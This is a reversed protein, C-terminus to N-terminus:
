LISCIELLSQVEFTPTLNKETNEKKGSNYWISAIGAHTAFGIDSKLSDGIIIYEELRTRDSFIRCFSRHDAKLYQGELPYIAEIYQLLEYKSLLMVQTEMFWDTLVVNRYGKEFLKKLCTKAEKDVQGTEVMLWKQFFEAASLNYYDLIPMEKRIFEVMKKPTVIKDQFYDQFNSLMQFYQEELPKTKELHLANCLLDMENDSHHWLTGDCDWILTTINELSRRNENEKQM